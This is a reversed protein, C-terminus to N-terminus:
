PRTLAFPIDWSVQGSTGFKNGSASTASDLRLNVTESSGECTLQFRLTNGDPTAPGIRTGGCNDPGGLSVAGCSRPAINGAYSAMGTVPGGAAPQELRLTFTGSDTTQCSGTGIPGAYRGSWTGAFMVAGRGEPGDDAAGGAQRGGGAATPQEEVAPAGLQEGRAYQNGDFDICYASRLVCVGGEQWEVFGIGGSRPPPAEVPTGVAPEEPPEGLEATALCDTLQQLMVGLAAAYQGLTVNAGEVMAEPPYSRALRLEERAQQIEANVAEAAEPTLVTQCDIDQARAGLPAATATLLAVNLLLRALRM